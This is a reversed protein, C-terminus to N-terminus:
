DHAGTREAGRPAGATILDALAARAATWASPNKEWAFFSEALPGVIKEAEARKGARELIALYEYDEISDRLAKLRLSPAIGDYGVARAPYVLTGEGNYVRTGRGDRGRGYTWADTWPDEVERWYSMGGWYLLGRMRYKWAIWAPVRYNLLPYDIHWWPSPEKGQCLATYTWVIEGLAIRELASDQRHLCFLPCWIDVAGYLDGWKEDQPWTQEVVLVKVVSKAERIAKGWIQCFKYAEADNPEDRLYTYFLVDPAGLAAAARDWAALWARLEAQQAAPDKFLASPNPVMVANVHYRDIFRRLAKVNEPSIEYSGDPRRQPSLLAPPPAANIRHRTVLDACQEEIAQWDAPEPEKGAAARERYYARMRGAPSGFATHMTSVRPLAFDWVKLRVAVEARRGGDFVVACVGDYTGPRADAPVHVDVWFGHTEGAPLEFPVAALRGGALPKRTLPHLLPILADPYWGPKFSENRYTGRTIHMQHQRYIEMESVPIIAGEPGRLHSCEIGTIKAPADSRLLVQYSEWENRAAALSVNAAPPPPVDRMFRVTQASAGARLAAGCPVCRAGILIAVAFFCSAWRM